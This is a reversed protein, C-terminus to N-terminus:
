CVDGQFVFDRGGTRYWEIVSKWGNGVDENTSEDMAMRNSEVIGQMRRMGGVNIDLGRLLNPKGLLMGVVKDLIYVSIFVDQETEELNPHSHLNLDIASATILGNLMWINPRMHNYIGTTSGTSSSSYTSLLTYLALLLHAQMIALSPDQQWANAPYINQAMHFYSEPISSSCRGINSQFQAGIALVILVKFKELNACQESAVNDAHAQSPFDQPSIIPFYPHIREFFVRSYWKEDAGPIIQNSIPESCAFPHPYGTQVSSSRAMGDLYRTAHPLVDSRSRPRSMTFNPTPPVAPKFPEYGRFSRESYAMSSRRSPWNLDSESLYEDNGYGHSMAATLSPSPPGSWSGVSLDPMNFATENMGGDNSTHPNTEWSTVEITPIDPVVLNNNDLDTTPFDVDAVPYNTDPPFPFSRARRPYEFFSTHDSVNFAESSSWPPLDSAPSNTFDVPSSCYSSAYGMQYDQYDQRPISSADGPTSTPTPSMAPSTPIQLRLNQSPGSTSMSGSPTSPRPYVLAGDRNEQQALLSELRKVREELYSQSREARRDDSVKCQLGLRTCAACPFYDDCRIKRRRCRECSRLLSSRPAKKVPAAAAASGQVPSAMNM